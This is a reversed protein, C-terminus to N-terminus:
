RKWIVQNEKIIKKFNTSSIGCQIRKQKKHDRKFRLTIIPNSNNQKYLSNWKKRFEKWKGDDSRDNSIDKMETLMDSIITTDGFYNKWNNYSVLIKYEEVINTKEGKWFGVYLYFDQNLLTQRRFDGFDVSSNLKINKVSVPMDGEFADWKDTYGESKIINNENIIRSEYEFAHGQREAM